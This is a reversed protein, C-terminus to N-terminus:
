DVLCSVALSAGAPPAAAHFTEIMVEGAGCLATEHLVYCPLNGSASPDDPRDCAALSTESQDTAILSADCDAQLGATESDTDSPARDLCHTFSLDDPDLAQGIQQAIATLSESMDGCISAWTSHGPFADTFGVLRVTPPFPVNAESVCSPAFNIFDPLEPDEVEITVPSPDGSITAVTIMGPDDKLGALFSVYHDLSYQYAPDDRPVCNEYTGVARAFEPDCTVGFEFCRTGYPGLTGSLSRLSPDPDFLSTDSASCDDRRSVFRHGVM